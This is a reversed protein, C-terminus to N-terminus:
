TASFSDSVSMAETGSITHCQCQNLESVKLNQFIKTKM